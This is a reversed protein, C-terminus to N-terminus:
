HFPDFPAADVLRRRWKVGRGPEPRPATTEHIAAPRREGEFGSCSVVADGEVAVLLHVLTINVNARGAVFLPVRLQSPADPM